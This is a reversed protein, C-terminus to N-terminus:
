KLAWAPDPVAFDLGLTPFAYKVARLDIAMIRGREIGPLAPLQISAGATTDPIPWLSADGIADARNSYPAYRMLDPQYLTDNIIPHGISALHQRIQHMRGHRPTCQVVTMDHGDITTRFRVSIKTSAEKPDAMTPRLVSGLAQDVEIQDAELHGSVRALYTKQVANDRIARSLAAAAAKTKALIVLGSTLADLRHVVFVDSRCAVIESTELISMLTNHVYRANAYMPVCGPKDIALFDKDEFVVTPTTAVVDPEHRLVLTQLTDHDALCTAATTPKGNVTVHGALIMRKVVNEDKLRSFEATIVDLVTRGLWRGKVTTSFQSLYPAEIRRLLGGYGDAVLAVKPTLLHACSALLTSSARTRSMPDSSPM